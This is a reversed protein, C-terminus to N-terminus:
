YWEKKRIMTYKTWISTKAFAQKLLVPTMMTTVIAMLVLTSFISIDILGNTLGISAVVLEMIGRGNMGVGVVLGERNSLNALKSGLFGGVIKGAVSIILIITVFFVNTLSYLAFNLGIYVFFIPALFGFTVQSAAKEVSEFNKKGLIDKSLLLSGFFTGVVFHLGLWEAIGAFLLVSLITIGFLSEKGRLFSLVKRLAIPIPMVLKKSQKTIVMDVILILSVFAFVKLLVFLGDILGSLPEASSAVRLVISLIVIATVDDTIVSAILMKGIKSNLMGLDMLIRIAVPLATISICLGIFISAIANQGFSLSVFVGLFFPIIFGLGGIFVSGSKVANRIDEMRMELGAIFVLLFISIDAIANLEKSPSALALVSPGLIIGALIEGMMSSQRFREMIEGAIKAVVLLILITVILHM